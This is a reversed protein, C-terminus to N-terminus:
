LGTDDQEPDHRCLHRAVPTGAYAGGRTHGVDVEHDRLMVLVELALGQQAPLFHRELPWEELAIEYREPDLVALVRQQEVPVYGIGTDLALGYAAFLARAPAGQASFLELTLWGGPTAPRAGPSASSSPENKRRRPAAGPASRTWRGGAGRAFAPARM